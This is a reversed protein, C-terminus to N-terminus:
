ALKLFLLCCNSDWCDLKPGRFFLVDYSNNELNLRAYVYIKDNTTSMPLDGAHSSAIIIEKLSPSPGEPCPNLGHSCVGRLMTKPWTSLYVSPCYDLRTSGKRSEVEVEVKYNLLKKSIILHQNM